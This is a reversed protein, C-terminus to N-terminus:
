EVSPHKIQLFCNQMREHLYSHFSAYCIGQNKFAIEELFSMASLLCGECTCAVELAEWQRKELM